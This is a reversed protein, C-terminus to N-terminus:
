AQCINVIDSGHFRAFHLYTSDNDDIYGFFIDVNDYESIVNRYDGMVTVIVISLQEVTISITESPGLVEQLLNGDVDVYWIQVFADNEGVLNNFTVECVPRSGGGSGGSEAAEVTVKSLVCGESPTIIQQTDTPTVTKEELAIGVEGEGGYYGAPISCRPNNVDLVEQVGHLIPIADLKDALADLKDTDQALGMSVLKNRITDRATELREIETQNSV